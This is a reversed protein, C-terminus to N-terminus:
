CLFLGCAGSLTCCDSVPSIVTMIEFAFVSWLCGVSPLLRLCQIYYEYERVFVSWLCGVSPLLRLCQIYYEYERVCFCVVPVRCLAAFLSM